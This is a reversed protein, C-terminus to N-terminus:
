GVVKRGLDFVAMVLACTSLFGAGLALLLTPVFHEATPQWGGLVWPLCVLALVAATSVAENVVLALSSTARAVARIRRATDVNALLLALCLAAFSLRAWIPDLSALVLSVVLPITYVILVIRTGARMYADVASGGFVSRRLGSDVYFFVGVLFLGTLTASIEATHFLFSDSVPRM